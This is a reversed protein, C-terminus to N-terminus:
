RHVREVSSCDTRLLVDVGWLECGYSLVPKVFLDFLMCRQEVLCAGLEWARRRMAFMAQRGARALVDACSAFGHQKSLQSFTLPMLPRLRHGASCRNYHTPPPAALPPPPATATLTNQTATQMSGVTWMSH